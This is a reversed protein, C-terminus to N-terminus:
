TVGGKSKLLDTFMRKAVELSGLAILEPVAIIGSEMESFVAVTGDRYTKISISYMVDTPDM